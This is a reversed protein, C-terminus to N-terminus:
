TSTSVLRKAVKSRKRIFSSGLLVFGLSIVIYVPTAFCIILSVFPIPIMLVAFCAMLTGAWKYTLRNYPVYTSCGTSVVIGVDVGIRRVHLLTTWAFIFLGAPLLIGAVCAM